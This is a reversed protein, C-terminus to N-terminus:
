RSIACVLKTSSADLGSRVLLKPIDGEDDLGVLRLENVGLDFASQVSRGFALGRYFAATFVRAADDAVSGSMGVVFDIEQVIAQAQVESYCANLVVVRIEGKLIRFLDVLAGEAVLKEADQDQSHLVIGASGGGHGSFHVVVPEDELLAQQLDEPRVAWRTRFTVLDRHKADRVKEEIARAEEDLALRESTLPNAALFTIRMAASKYQTPTPKTSSDSSAGAPPWFFQDSWSLLSRAHWAVLKLEQKWSRRFSTAASKWQRTELVQAMRRHDGEEWFFGTHRMWEVFLPEDISPLAEILRIVLAISASRTRESVSDVVLRCISEPPAAVHENTIFRAWWADAAGAQVDTSLRALVTAADVHELAVAGAPAPLKAAIATAAEDGSLLGNFVRSLFSVTILEEPFRGGIHLHRRLLEFIAPQDTVGAFLRPQSLTADAARDLLPPWATTTAAVVVESASRESLLAVLGAEPTATGNRLLDVVEALPRRGRLVTALLTPWDKMSCVQVVEDLLPGEPLDPAASALWAETQGAADLYRDLWRFAQPQLELWRWMASALTRSASGVASALGERIGDRWWESHLPSLHHQLIWLADQDGAEAIRAEVWRAVAGKVADINPIQDLRTLSATRIEGAGSKALKPLAAGVVEADEPPLSLGGPFAEQTRVVLLAEALSGRGAHLADLKEVLRNLRLLVSFDGPLREANEELLRRFPASAEGAFWRGAPSTCPEPQITVTVNGQWRTLLAMPFLVIKPPTTINLSEAVFATRLSLERRAGPWLRPWLAALLGPAVSLDPIAIPSDTTALREVVTGAFDAGRSPEEAHGVSILVSFLDPLEGCELLPVLAVKARVMNRRPATPDEEGRWLAWLDGVRQCGWYPSWPVSSDIHGAPRDVLFRLEELAPTTAPLTSSLLQHSGDKAGFSAQHVNTM